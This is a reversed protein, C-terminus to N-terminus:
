GPPGPPFPGRPPPGFRDDFPPRARDHSRDRDDRRGRNRDESRFDDHREDRRPSRDRDDGWGRGGGRRTMFIYDIMTNVADGHRIFFM